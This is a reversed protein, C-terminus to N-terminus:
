QKAKKAARIIVKSDAAGRIKAIKGDKLTYIITEDVILSDGKAFSRGRWQVADRRAKLQVRLEVMIIGLNEDIAITNPTITETFDKWIKTYWDVIAQRGILIGEDAGKDFAVDPSYYCTFSTNNTNFLDVYRYFTARNMTNPLNTRCPEGGASASSPMLIVLFALM